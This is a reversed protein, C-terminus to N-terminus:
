EEEAPKQEEILLTKGGLKFSIKVPRAGKTLIPFMSDEALDLRGRGENVMQIVM